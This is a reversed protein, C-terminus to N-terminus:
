VWLEGTSKGGSNDEVEPIPALEQETIVSLKAESLTDKSNKESSELGVQESMDGSDKSINIKTDSSSKQPSYHWEETPPSVVKIQSASECSSLKSDEEISRGNIRIIPSEPPSLQEDLLSGLDCSETDYDFTALSKAARNGFSPGRRAPSVPLSCSVGKRPIVPEEDACVEDEDSKVPGVKSGESSLWKSLTYSSSAAAAASRSLEQPHQSQIRIKSFAGKLGKMVGLKQKTQLQAAIKEDVDLSKDNEEEDGQFISTRISCSSGLSKNDAKARKLNNNDESNEESMTEYAFMRSGPKKLNGILNTRSSESECDFEDSSPSKIVRGDKDRRKIRIHIPQDDDNPEMRGRSASRPSIPDDRGATNISLDSMRFIGSGQTLLTPNRTVSERSQSTVQSTSSMRSASRNFGRPKRSTRMSTTSGIPRISRRRLNDNSGYKMRQVLQSLISPKRGVSASQPPSVLGSGSSRRSGSKIDIAKTEGNELEQVIDTGHVSEEDEEEEEVLPLFEQELEPVELNATSGQPPEIRFQEAAITYPLESPFIEDWYKDQILEPHESHMEDVILYSVQLNRDVLWNVEFDDDDEGFPNVLSEAVKLWGMYFFFQLFTFVPVYFDIDQKPINQKPDLFQRGMITGIFFTYVSLTVVQTYVLPISIWDYSLLGGCLGRFRNIEDIITKVAFDDRIRGEKRARAVISGAWVLPMWYKPHPTKTDLDDFIKQENETMFGAEVLHDRTPFRKKVGPAIMIFTFLVSLNCYRMITRRMVRGREDQGHISTSIFLALSDPWPLTQYQNWWRQVVISVYFGLVFSVPILDTFYQCYQSVKEFTRKSPEDLLFRYVISFVYYLITYVFLEPWVLNYIGGRWRFLLKWFTGFKNCTAVEHTYTVTM